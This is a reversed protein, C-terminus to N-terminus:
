FSNILLPPFITLVSGFPFDERDLDYNISDSCKRITHFDHWFCSQKLLFSEGRIM